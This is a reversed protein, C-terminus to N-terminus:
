QHGFVGGQGQLESGRDGNVHQFSSNTVETLGKSGLNLLSQKRIPMLYPTPLSHPLLPTPSYFLNLFSPQKLSPTALIGYGSLDTQNNAKAISSPNQALALDSRRLYHRNVTREGKM